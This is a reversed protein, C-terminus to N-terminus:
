NFDSFDLEAIIKKMSLGKKEIYFSIEIYLLSNRVYYIDSKLYALNYEDNLNDIDHYIFDYKVLVANEIDM